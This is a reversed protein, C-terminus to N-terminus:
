PLCYWVLGGFCFSGALGAFTWRLRKLIPQIQYTAILRDQVLVEPTKTWIQGDYWGSEEYCIAPRNLRDSVYAWGLYLQLLVLTLLINAGLTGWLFFSVPHKAIPFSAAAVPGSILWSFSWICTLKTLYRKLGLTGWSFFWSESLTKYENLPQQESPVPCASVSSEMM